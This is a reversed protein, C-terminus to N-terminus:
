FPLFLGITAGIAAGVACGIVAGVLFFWIGILVGIACGIAAGVFVGVLLADHLLGEVEPPTNVAAPNPVGAAPTLTLSKGSPDLAPTLAFNQGTEMRLTTPIAGVIAGDDALVNVAAPTVEFRGSALDVTATRHDPALSTTYSIPGDVGNMTLGALTGEGHATATAIGTAAIAFLTTAVLKKIFMPLGIM